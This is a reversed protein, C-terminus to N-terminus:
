YRAMRPDVQLAYSEVGGRLNVAESLGLRRLYQTALLSRRGSHCFVILPRDRPLEHARGALEGLPVHLAEPFNCIALEWPERVDLLAYAQPGSRLGALEAPDIEVLLPESRLGATARGAPPGDSTM